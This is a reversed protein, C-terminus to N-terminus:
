IKGIILKSLRKPGSFHKLKKLYIVIEQSRGYLGMIEALRQCQLDILCGIQGEEGHPDRRHLRNPCQAGSLSSAADRCYRM